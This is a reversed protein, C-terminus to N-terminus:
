RMGRRMTLQDDFRRLLCGIDLGLRGWWGGGNVEGLESATPANDHKGHESQCYGGICRHQIGKARHHNRQLVGKTPGPALQLGGDAEQEAAGYDAGL